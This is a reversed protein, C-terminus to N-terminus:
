KENKNFLNILGGSIIILTSLWIWIMFPKVQYRLNFYEYDDKILNIVLFRDKLFSTKIAAESMLKILVNYTHNNCKARQAVTVGDTTLTTDGNDHLMVGVGGPGMTAAVLNKLISSAELIEMRVQHGKVINSHKTDSM